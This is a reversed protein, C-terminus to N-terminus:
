PSETRRQILSYIPHGTPSLVVHDLEVRGAVVLESAALPVWPADEVIKDQIQAYLKVRESTESAAQAQELLADVEASKYYAVNQAVAGEAQKSHLLVYLFNDPDGTDGIWGFIALDHEGRQIAARHQAFPQLVLRTRIGAQALSAQVYRAVREPAPLYPRPTSPAYLNYIRNPDFRGDKAAEALLRKAAVPDYDYKM